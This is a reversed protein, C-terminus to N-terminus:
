FSYTQKNVTNENRAVVISPFPKGERLTRLTESARAPSGLKLSLFMKFQM